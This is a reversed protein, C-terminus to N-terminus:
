DEEKAIMGASLCAFVADADAARHGTVILTCDPYSITWPRDGGEYVTGEPFEALKRLVLETAM